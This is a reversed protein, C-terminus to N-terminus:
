AGRDYLTTAEVDRVNSSQFEKVLATHYWELHNRTFDRWAKRVHGCHVNM